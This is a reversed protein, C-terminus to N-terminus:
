KRKGGKPAPKRDPPFIEAQDPQAKAARPKAPQERGKADPRDADHSGGQHAASGGREDDSRRGKVSDGDDREKADAGTAEQEIITNATKTIEDADFAQTKADRLRQALGEIKPTIDMMPPASELEEVAYAGLLVDPCFLRAWQRSASYFMQVEPNADWLQSGKVYTVNDKTVHGPHMKALTESIYEHPKDEGKFTGWVRCRRENGEGTIEYRLRHKIPANKEVVAHLLQSEYGIRDGRQPVYSKNIVSMIPLGWELAQMSLAFCVGPKGRCHNPVAIEGRSLFDSVRSLDAVSSIVVGGLTAGIEIGRTKVLETRAEIAVPDVMVQEQWQTQAEAETTEAAEGAV